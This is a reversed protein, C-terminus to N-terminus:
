ADEEWEYFAKFDIEHYNLRLYAIFDSYATDLERMVAKSADLRSPELSGRKDESFKNLTNEYDHGYGGTYQKLIVTVANLKKQFELIKSKLEQDYIFFQKSNIFSNLSEIRRPTRGEIRTHGHQILHDMRLTRFLNLIFSVTEIDHSREKLEIQNKSRLNREPNKEIIGLIRKTLEVRLQGVGNTDNETRITFDSCSRKEIDFPLATPFEGTHKNFLIIIRNWTLESIAYGLEILVNPNAIQRYKGDKSEFAQGVVSLDGIYIDAKTINQLINNPIHLSGVENSVAEDIRIHLGVITKEIDIIALRIADLIAKRNFQSDSQWSYFITITM